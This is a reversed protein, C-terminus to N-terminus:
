VWVLLSARRAADAVMGSVCNRLAVAGAWDLSFVVSFAVGAVWSDFM